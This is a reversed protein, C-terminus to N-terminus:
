QGCWRFSEQVVFPGSWTGDSQCRYEYYGTSTDYSTACKSGTSYTVGSWAEKARNRLSILSNYTFIVWLVALFIIGLIAYLLITM